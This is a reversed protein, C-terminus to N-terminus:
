EGAIRQSLYANAAAQLVEVATQVATAFASAQAATVPTAPPGPPVLALGATSRAELFSGLADRFDAGRVFPQTAGEDALAISEAVAVLEGVQLRANGAQIEVDHPTVLVHARELLERDITEGNVETPPSAGDAFLLGDITALENPDGGPFSVVVFSGAALPHSLIAGDGVFAGRVRAPIPGTGDLPGGVLEVDAIMGLQPDWRIADDDELVRAGSVWVRPDNGPAAAAAGIRHVDIARGRRM